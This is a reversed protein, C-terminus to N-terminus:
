APRRRRSRLVIMRVVGGDEVQPYLSVMLAFCIVTVLGSLWAEANRANSPLFAACLSGLFPLLVILVLRM